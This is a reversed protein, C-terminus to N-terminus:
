GTGCAFLSARLFSNFLHHSSPTSFHGGLDSHIKGENLTGFVILSHTKETIKSFYIFSQTFAM